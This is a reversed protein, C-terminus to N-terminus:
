WYCLSSKEGETGVGVIIIVCAFYDRGLEAGPKAATPPDEVLRDAREELGRKGIKTEEVGRSRAEEDGRSRLDDRYVGLRGFEFGGM